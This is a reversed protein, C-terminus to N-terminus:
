KKKYSHFHSQLDSLLFLSFFTIVRAAHTLISTKHTHTPTLTWSFVFLFNVPESHTSGHTHIATNLKHFKFDPKQKLMKIYIYYASSFFVRVFFCLFIVSQKVRDDLVSYIFINFTNFSWFTTKHEHTLSHPNTIMQFIAFCAGNENGRLM